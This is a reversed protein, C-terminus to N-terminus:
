RVRLRVNLSCLLAVSGEILWEHEPSGTLNRFPLILFSRAREEPPPPPLGRTQMAAPRVVACPPPSGDPCQGALDSPWLAVLAVASSIVPRSWSLPSLSNRRRM